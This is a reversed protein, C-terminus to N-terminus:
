CMNAILMQPDRSRKEWWLRLHQGDYLAVEPLIGVTLRFATRPEM